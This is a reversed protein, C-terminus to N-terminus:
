GIFLARYENQWGILFHSAEYLFPSKWYASVICPEKSLIYLEKRPIYPAKLLIVSYLARRSFIFSVENLCLARKMPHFFVLCTQDQSQICPEKLLIYPVKLSMYLQTCLRIYYLAGKISYTSPKVSDPAREMSQYFVLSRQYFIYKTECLRSSKEYVSLIRPEKSLIYLELWLIYPEKSLM